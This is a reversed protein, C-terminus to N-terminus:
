ETCILKVGLVFAGDDSNKLLGNANSFMYLNRYQPRTLELHSVGDDFARNFPEDIWTPYIPLKKEEETFYDSLKATKM